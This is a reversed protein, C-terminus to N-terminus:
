AAHDPSLDKTSSGAYIRMNGSLCFGAQLDPTGGSCPFAYQGPGEMTFLRNEHQDHRIENM